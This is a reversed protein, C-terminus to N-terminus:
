QGSQQQNAKQRQAEQKQEAKEIEPNEQLIPDKATSTTNTTPESSGVSQNQNDPM